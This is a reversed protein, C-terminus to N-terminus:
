VTAPLRALMSAAANVIHTHSHSITHSLSVAPSREELGGRKVWRKRRKESKM